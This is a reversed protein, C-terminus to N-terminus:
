IGQSLRLILLKIERAAPFRADAPFEILDYHEMAKKVHNEHAIFNIGIKFIAQGLFTPTM